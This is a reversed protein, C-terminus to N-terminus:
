RDALKLSRKDPGSEGIEEVDACDAHRDRAERHATDKHQLRRRRLPCLLAEGLAPLKPMKKMVPMLDDWRSRTNIHQDIAVKRLFAFAQQHEPKPTMM